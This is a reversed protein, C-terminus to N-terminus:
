LQLLGDVLQLIVEVMEITVNESENWATALSADVYLESTADSVAHYIISVGLSLIQSPFM